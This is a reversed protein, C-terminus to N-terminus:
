GVLGAARRAEAARDELREAEQRATAAAEETDALDARLREVEAGLASARQQAEAAQKTVDEAERRAARLAQEDDEEGDETAAPELGWVQELGSSSLEKTLRGRLLLEQEEETAGALLTQSIHQLSSSGPAHGGEVLVEAAAQKLQTVLDRRKRTLDRLGRASSASALRDQLSVLEQMLDPERRALQNVAWAALTPKALAKVAAAADRDGSTKLQKALANRESTFEELPLAYLRDILEETSTTM